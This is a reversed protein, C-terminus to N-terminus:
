EAHRYFCRSDHQVYGLAILEDLGFVDMWYMKAGVEKSWQYYRKEAPSTTHVIWAKRSQGAQLFASCPTEDGHRSDTLAWTGNPIFEAMADPDFIRVGTDEFLFCRKQVQFAVTMKKSLLRFLLYHLFCTKGSNTLSLHMGIGPQGTVVVGGGRIDSSKEFSEKFDDFATEYEKRVLLAVEPYRFTKLLDIIRAKPLYKFDHYEPM